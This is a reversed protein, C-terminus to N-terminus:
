KLDKDSGVSTSQLKVFSDIVARRRGEQPGSKQTFFLM